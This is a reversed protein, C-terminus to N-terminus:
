QVAISRRNRSSRPEGVQHREGWGSLTGVVGVWGNGGRMSSSTFSDFRRAAKSSHKSSTSASSSSFTTKLGLAQQRLASDTHPHTTMTTPSHTIPTAHVHHPDSPDLSSTRLPMLALTSNLLGHNATLQGFPQNISADHNKRLVAPSSIQPGDICM